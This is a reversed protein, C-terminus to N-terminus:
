LKKKWIKERYYRIKYNEKKINNLIQYGFM